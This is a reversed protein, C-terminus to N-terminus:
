SPGLGNAKNTHFLRIRTDQKVYKNVIDITRDNSGDDVVIIEFEHYVQNLISELTESIYRDGNRVSIVISFFIKNTM